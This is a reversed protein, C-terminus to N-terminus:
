IVLRLKRVNDSHRYQSAQVMEQVLPRTFACDGSEKTRDIFGYPFMQFQQKERIKQHNDKDIAILM